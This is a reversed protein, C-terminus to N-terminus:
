RTLQADESTDGLLENLTQKDIKLREATVSKRGDSREFAWRAYRRELESLPVVEGHFTAPATEPATARELFLTLEDLLFPKMLYHYAGQRMAAIAFEIAGYEAMLIVPRSPSMRQSLKLLDIGDLSRMRLGTLLVDVGDRALRSAAEAGPALPLADFGRSLLGDAITQVFALDDDVVLIRPRTV